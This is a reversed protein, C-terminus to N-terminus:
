VLKELEAWEQEYLREQQRIEEPTSAVFPLAVTGVLAFSSAVRALLHKHRESEAASAKDAAQVTEAVAVKSQEKVQLLSADATPASSSKQFLLGPGVENEAANCVSCLAACLLAV